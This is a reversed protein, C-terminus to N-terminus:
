NFVERHSWEDRLQRQYAVPDEIGAFPKTKMEDFMKMIKGANGKEVPPTEVMVEVEKVFRINKLWEALMAAHNPQEVTVSITSM